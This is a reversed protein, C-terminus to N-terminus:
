QGSQSDPTSNKALGKKAKKHGYTRPQTYYDITPALINMLLVAFAVGDPYGGWARIVYVLFGTGAGFLLQGKNSTAGSVPDTIIFFAGLMTAGSFLHFLPSGHSTPGEGSSFIFSMIALTVLMAVPGHWTFLRKYLMFLGGFLYTANVWLWGRSAFYEVVPNNAWLASLSLSKNERLIDLATAMSIADVNLGQGITFITTLADQLGYWPLANPTTNGFGVPPLWRTMAQPFSILLVVYGLMAPNFPNQGLGGYIHKGIVVAFATGILTLWFPSLPPVSVGILVATVVVSYDKLYFGISRHRCKLVFAECALAVLSCWIVNILTGWGFYFTQVALGPITALLVLSMINKTSNASLTHPSTQRVLTM